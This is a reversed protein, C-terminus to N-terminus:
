GCGWGLFNGESAELFRLLEAGVFVFGWCGGNEDSGGGEQNEPKAALKVGFYTALGVLIIAGGGVALGIALKRNM